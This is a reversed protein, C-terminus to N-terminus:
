LAISSHSFTRGASPVLDLDIKWLSSEEREKTSGVLIKASLNRSHHYEDSKAFCSELFAASDSWSGGGPIVVVGLDTEGFFCGGGERESSDSMGGASSSNSSCSAEEAGTADDDRKGIKVTAAM